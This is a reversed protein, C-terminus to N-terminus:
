YLIRNGGTQRGWHIIHYTFKPKFDSFATIDITNYSLTTFHAPLCNCVTHKICLWTQVKEAGCSNCKFYRSRYLTGKQGNSSKILPHQLAPRVWFLVPILTFLLLILGSVCLLTLLFRPESFATHSPPTPRCHHTSPSHMVCIEARPWYDLPFLSSLLLWM